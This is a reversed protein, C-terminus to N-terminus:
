VRHYSLVDIGFQKLSQALTYLPLGVINFFDGEVKKVFIAGKEQIGYAGAKDLPEGTSIYTDIEEETIQRMFVRATESRTLTQKTDTDMITMGTIIQHTTNSLLQLMRKADDKSKPKGLVQNNCVVITDAAIIIANTEKQCVAKAKGLSLEEVLQQPNKNNTLEEEFDSVVITFPIGLIELLAKRRPSMSALIIRKSSPNSM